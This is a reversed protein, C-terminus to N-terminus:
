KAETLEAQAAQLEARARRLRDSREKKSPTAAARAAPRMETAEPEKKEVAALEQLALEKRKRAKRVAQYAPANVRLSQAKVKNVDIRDESTKVKEQLRETRDSQAKVASTALMISALFLCSLGGSAHKLIRPINM